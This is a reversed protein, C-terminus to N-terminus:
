VSQFIGDPVLVIKGFGQKSEIREHAEAARSLPLVLDIPPKYTGDAVKELIGEFAEPSIIGFSGRITGAKMILEMVDIEARDGSMTGVCAIRGHNALMRVSAELTARGVMDVVATAGQGDTAELVAGALDLSDRDVVADAGLALLRAHKSPDSIALVWAKRSRAIQIAATGVGSSAAHVVLRERTGFEIAKLALWATTFALGVTSAAIPDLRAPIRRLQGIPVTTYEAYAGDRARGLAEFTAVVRDGGKFEGVDDVIEGAFDMGLIHPLAKWIFFRGERHFLDTHNVTAALVRILAEDPGPEPIPVQEYRLVEPGGRERMVVANM